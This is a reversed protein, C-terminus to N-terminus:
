DMVRASELEEVGDQYDWLGVFDEDSGIGGEGEDHAAGLCTEGDDIEIASNEEGIEFECSLGRLHKELGVTTFEIDDGGVGVAELDDVRPSM